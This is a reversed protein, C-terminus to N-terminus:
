LEVFVSFYFRAVARRNTSALRPAKAKAKGKAKAKPAKRKRGAQAAAQAAAQEELRLPRFNRLIHRIM